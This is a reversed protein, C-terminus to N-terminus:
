ELYWSINDVEVSVDKNIGYHIDEFFGNEGPNLTYPYVTRSGEDYLNGMGDYIKYFITIGYISTTALNKVEGTIYLDGFEDVKSELKLVEVAATRNVLDEKEAAEMAKELRLQEAEEFKFREREIREKFAVLENHDKSYNLAKDITAIAKSFEKNTLQVEADKITLQVIKKVIQQQTAKAEESTLSTLVSLKSILDEVTDLQDIELKIKGVTATVDKEKVRKSIVEFLPGQEKALDRDLLAIKQSAENWKKRKILLSVEDLRESYEDAKMVVDKADKLIGYSPRLEIAKDLEKVAQDYDGDIAYREASAKLSMVNENLNSEHTYYGYVGGGVLFLSITPILLMVLNKTSQNRREERSETQSEVDELHNLDNDLDLKTGCNACFRSGEVLKSGCEHCYM